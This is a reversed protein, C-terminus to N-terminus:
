RPRRAPRNGPSSRPPEEIGLADRKDRRTGYRGVFGADVLSMSFALLAAWALGRAIAIAGGRKGPARTVWCFGLMSLPGVAYLAAGWTAQNWGRERREPPTWARLLLQLGLTLLISCAM